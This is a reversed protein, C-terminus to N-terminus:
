GFRITTRLYEFAADFIRTNSEYALSRNGYLHTDLDFNAILSVTDRLKKRQVSYKRCTFSFVFIIKLERM